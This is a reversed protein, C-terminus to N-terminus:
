FPSLVRGSESDLAVLHHEARLQMFGNFAETFSVWCFIAESLSIYQTHNMACIGSFDSHMPFFSAYRRPSFRWLGCVLKLHRSVSSFIEVIGSSRGVALWRGDPSFQLAEVSSPPQSDICRFRPLCNCQPIDSLFMHANSHLLM